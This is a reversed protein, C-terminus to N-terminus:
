YIYLIYIYIYVGNDKLICNWCAYLHAWIHDLTKADYQEYATKVKAILQDINNANQKIAAVRHFFGLDLINLDPSQAPQTVMEFRWGGTSGLTAIHQPNNQGTHPRAGDQQIKVLQGHMWPMKQKISDLVGGEKTFLHQYFPGDLSKPKTVMTGAPRTAHESFLTAHQIEDLLLDTLQHFDLLISCSWVSPLIIWLVDSSQSRSSAPSEFHHGLWSLLCRSSRSKKRKHHNDDVTEHLIV